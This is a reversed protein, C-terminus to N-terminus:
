HLERSAAEELFEVLFGEQRLRVTEQASLVEVHTVKAGPTAANTVMSVAAVDCGRSSLLLAEPVTSMSVTSVGGDRLFRIEPSTEYSPGSACAFRGERVPAGTRGAIALGAAILERSYVGAGPRGYVSRPVHGACNVHDTFMVADGVSLEPDVAGSSSTLLWTTVGLDSLVGPLLIIEEGSFGQYGHRRGMLFVFRGCGSFVMHGPHGALELHGYGPLEAFPLEAGTPFSEVLWALGSGLIVGVPPIVECRSVIAGAVSATVLDPELEREMVFADEGDPYYRELEHSNSYGASVYFARAPTSGSRVELRSLGAGLRAGWDEAMGLLLGGLGQRRFNERVALNLMHLGDRDLVASVYGAIGGALRATWTRVPFGDDGICAALDERSWPCPFCEKEVELMGGIDDRCAFRIDPYLM